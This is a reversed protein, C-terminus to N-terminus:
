KGRKSHGRCTALQQIFFDTIANYCTVRNEFKLVDHGENEFMLYDVQKGDAKLRSSSRARSAKWSARDNKGQIVADPVLIESIPAPSREVLFAHDTAADGVAFRSTRAELRHINNM